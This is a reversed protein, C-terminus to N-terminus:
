YIDTIANIISTQLSDWLMFEYKDSKPMNATIINGDPWRYSMKM